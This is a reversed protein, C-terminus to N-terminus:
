ATVDLSGAMRAQAEEAARILKVAAEGQDQESDLIRKAVAVQVQSITRDQMVGVAASIDM